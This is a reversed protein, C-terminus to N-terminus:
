AFYILNLTISLTVWMLGILPVGVKVFDSFQYGGANMVLLNTKYAMPTAYSLNAGFLVALVFPEAPAGLQQAVSIAIPTGIVAAANNSVINTLIALLLMLAALVGGVPLSSSLAVFIEALYQAAGTSVMAAGLALSAAVILIVQTSLASSIEQWNLCRSALLIFVGCIASIVIPLIGFVPMLVVGFLVGLAIPAKESQVVKAAGDVVLIGQQSKLEEIQDADGQVLLIDGVRLPISGISQREIDMPKGERHLAVASIGYESSFNASKLTKGILGSGLIVVIEALVQNGPDLPHEADIKHKGSHLTAKLVSEYERLRDPTDKVHIRDNEKILTDPLPLLKHFDKGRQISQIRIMGDTLKIAKSVKEGILPCNEGVHLYASFLRPSTDPMTAERQPLIKPAVLWLYLMAVIAGPLVIPAFDFMGFREMGMDAAVSVVLLNTSTGITTFMGGVLTALGMPLLMGSVNSQTRIAVSILIPLLLVVIPTNNVFASLTGAIILTALLSFSPSVKWMRSLTRGIPELAGTLVIAQGIIMLACVTVLAEHGFGHFFTVPDLEEGRVEYPFIAFYVTLVAIVALSSTELAIDDRKFLYLAGLTLCLVFMAHTNPISPLGAFLM